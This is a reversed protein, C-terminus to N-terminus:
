DAMLPAKREDKPEALSDARKAVTLAVSMAARKVAPKEGM